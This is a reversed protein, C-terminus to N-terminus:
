KIAKIQEDIKILEKCSIKFQERLTVCKLANNMEIVVAQRKMRLVEITTLTTM